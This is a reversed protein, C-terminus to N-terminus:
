IGRRDQRRLIDKDTIGNLASIKWGFRGAEGSRESVVADSRVLPSHDGDSDGSGNKLDTDVTSGGIEDSFFAGAGASTGVKESASSRNKCSNANSVDESASAPCSSTFGISSGASGTM